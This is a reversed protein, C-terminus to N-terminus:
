SYKIFVIYLSKLRPAMWLDLLSQSLEEQAPTQDGVVGIKGGADSGGGDVSQDACLNRRCKNSAINKRPALFSWSVHWLQGFKRSLGWFQSFVLLWRSLYFYDNDCICPIILQHLTAWVKEIIGLAIAEVGEGRGWMVKQLCCSHLHLFHLFFSIEIEPINKKTKRVPGTNPINTQNM